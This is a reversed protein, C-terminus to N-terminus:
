DEIRQWGAPTYERQRRVEWVDGQSGLLRLAEHTDWSRQHVVECPGDGLQLYCVLQDSPDSFMVVSADAITHHHGTESHAVIYSAKQPLRMYAQPVQSVRRFLVDGQCGIKDIAKM